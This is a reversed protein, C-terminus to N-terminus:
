KHRSFLLNDNKWNFKFDSRADLCGNEEEQLICTKKSFLFKVDFLQLHDFKYKLKFLQPHVLKYFRNRLENNTGQISCKLM